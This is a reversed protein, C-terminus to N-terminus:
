ECIHKNCDFTVSVAKRFGDWLCTPSWAYKIIGPLTKNPSKHPWYNFLAVAVRYVLLKVEALKLNSEAVAKKNM